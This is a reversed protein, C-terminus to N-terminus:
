ITNNHNEWRRPKRQAWAAGVQFPHFPRGVVAGSVVLTYVDGVCGRGGTKHAEITERKKVSVPKRKPQHGRRLLFLMETSSRRPMQKRTSPHRSCRRMQRTRTVPLQVAWSVARITRRFTTLRLLAFTLALPSWGCVYDAFAQNAPVRHSRARAYVPAQTSM